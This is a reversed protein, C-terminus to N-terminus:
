PIFRAKKIPFIVSWPKGIMQKKTVPGVAQFRSDESFQPNDGLVYYADAPLTVAGSSSRTTVELPTMYDPLTLPSDNVYIVGDLIKITEGPLGIVRKITRKGNDLEFLVPEFREPDRIMYVARNILVVDDDEIQPAMSSGVMSFRSGFIHGFFLVCAAVTVIHMLFILIQLGRRSNTDDYLKM